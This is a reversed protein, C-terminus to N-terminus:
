FDIKYQLSVSQSHSGEAKIVFPEKERCVYIRAHITGLSSSCTSRLDTQFGKGVPGYTSEWKVNTTKSNNWVFSKEGEDTAVVIKRDCYVSLPFSNNVEYKVYYRVEEQETSSNDPLQSLDDEDKSCSAFMLLLAVGFFLLKKM